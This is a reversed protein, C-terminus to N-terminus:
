RGRAEERRAPPTARGLERRSSVGLKRYVSRAHTRVTEIGISLDRSIEANTMGDQLRELIEAERATLMGAARRGAPRTPTSPLVHMGRAALQISNAIEAAPADKSVCATAGLSLLQNCEAHGARDAFIVLHADPHAGSLARLDLPTAIRTLDVLVASPAHEGIAKSLDRFPVAVAVLKLAPDGSVLAQLGLGVLEDFQGILVKIGKM